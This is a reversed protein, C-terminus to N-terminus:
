QKLVTPCVPLSDNPTMLFFEMKPVQGSNLFIESVIDRLVQTTAEHIALESFYLFKGFFVSSGPLSEWKITVPIETDGDAVMVEFEKNAFDDYIMKAAESNVHLVHTVSNKNCLMKTKIASFVHDNPTITSISMNPITLLFLM